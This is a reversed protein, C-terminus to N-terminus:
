LFLINKERRASLLFQYFSQHSAYIMLVIICSRSAPLGTTMVTTVTITILTRPVVTTLTASL